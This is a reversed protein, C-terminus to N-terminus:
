AAFNVPLCAIFLSIFSYFISINYRKQLFCSIIDNLISGLKQLVKDDRMTKAWM